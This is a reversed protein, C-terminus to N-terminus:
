GGHAHIIPDFAQPDARLREFEERSIVFRRDRGALDGTAYDLVFGDGARSAHWASGWINDADNTREVAKPVVREGFVLKM